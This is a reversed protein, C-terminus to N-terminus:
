LRFIDSLTDAKIGGCGVSPMYKIAKVWLCRTLPNFACSHCIALPYLIIDSNNKCIKM